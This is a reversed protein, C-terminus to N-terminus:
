RGVGQFAPDAPRNGHVLVALLDLAAAQELGRLARDGACGECRPRSDGGTLCRVWEDFSLKSRADSLGGRGQELAHCRGCREGFLREGRAFSRDSELGVAVAPMLSEFSWVLAADEGQSVEMAKQVDCGAFAVGFIM